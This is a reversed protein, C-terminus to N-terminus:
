AVVKLCQCYRDDHKGKVSELSPLEKLDMIRTCRDIIRKWDSDQKSVKFIKVEQTDKNEYLVGGEAVDRLNLYIQLQVGHEIKPSSLGKFGNSNITKVEVIYLGKEETNLLLDIRGSIPPTECSVPIEDGVFVKENIFYKKFRDQAVNGADFIRALHADIVLPPLLGRYHLYLVRDCPNGVMSAYFKGGASAFSEERKTCGADVLREMWLDRNLDSKVQRYKIDKVGPM